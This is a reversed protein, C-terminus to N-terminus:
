WRRCIQGLARQSKLILPDWGRGGPYKNAAPAFSSGRRRSGNKMSLCIRGLLSYKRESGVLSVLFWLQWYAPSPNLSGASGKHRINM